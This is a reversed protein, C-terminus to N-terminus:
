DFKLVLVTETGSDTFNYKLESLFNRMIHLGRGHDKFINEPKTPDPVSNPDFGKGEDKFLVELRDEHVLVKVLVKKKLDASNGHMISNAAAESVSISLNSLKEHNIKLKSAINIVFEEIEPLLDPDSPIEKVFEKVTM